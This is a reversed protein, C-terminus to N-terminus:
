GRADDVALVIVGGRGVRPSGMPLSTDSPWMMVSPDVAVTVHQGQYGGWDLESTDRDLLVFSAERESTGMGDGNVATLTTAEDLQLLAHMALDGTTPNPNEVGQLDAIGQDDLAHVTGTLVVLGFERAADAPDKGAREATSEWEGVELAAIDELEDLDTKDSSYSTWDITVFEEDAVRTVLSDDGVQTECVIRQPRIEGDWTYRWVTGEGTGSSTESVLLGDGYSSAFVTGRFGGTGAVGENLWVSPVILEDGDDSVSFAMVEFVGNWQEAPGSARVLLEPIEDNTADVLAYEFAVGEARGDELHDFYEMPNALVERYLAAAKQEPSKQAPVSSASGAQSGQTQAPAGTCGALGLTAAMGAVVVWRAAYMAKM